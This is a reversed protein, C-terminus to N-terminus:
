SNATSNNNQLISITDDALLITVESTGLQDLPIISVHYLLKLALASKRIYRILDGLEVSSSISTWLPLM